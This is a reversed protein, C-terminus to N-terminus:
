WGRNRGSNCRIVSSAEAWDRFIHALQGKAEYLLKALTRRVGAWAVLVGALGLDRVVLM